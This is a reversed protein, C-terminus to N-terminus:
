YPLDDDEIPTVDNDVTSTEKKSASEELAVRVEEKTYKSKETKELDVDIVELTETYGDISRKSNGGESKGKLTKRTPESDAAEGEVYNPKKNVSITVKILDGVKANETFYDNVDNDTLSLELELMEGKFNVLGVNVKRNVPKETIIVPIKLENLEKFDDTKFDIPENEIYITNVLYNIRKNYTDIEARTNLFVSDGDKFSGMIKEIAEQENLSTVETEGEAKLKINLKTNKWEGVQVFLSNDKCTQIGFSLFRKVGFDKAEKNSLNWLRCKTSFYGRTEQMM